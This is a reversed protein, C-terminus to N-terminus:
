AVNLLFVALYEAKLGDHKYTELTQIAKFPSLKKRYCRDTTLADYIDCISVICSFKNIRSSILGLPYGTGDTKEHHTLTSLKIDEHLDMSKILMYGKTTHTKMVDFEANTLKGKKCLISKPIATKGIDHLLGAITLSAIDDENMHLWKGFRSCLLSVNVCHHFTEKDFSKMLRMHHLIEKKCEEKRVIDELLKFLEEANAANTSNKSSCM